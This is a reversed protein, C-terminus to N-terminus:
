ARAALTAQPLGGKWCCSPTRRAPLARVARPPGHHHCRQGGVLMLHGENPAHKGGVGEDRAAPPLAERLDQPALAPVVELDSRRRAEPDRVELGGARRVRCRRRMRILDSAKLVLVVHRILLLRGKCKREAVGCYHRGPARAARGDALELPLRAAAEFGQAGAVAALRALCGLAAAAGADCADGALVGDGGPAAPGGRAVLGEAGGRHREGLRVDRGRHIADDIVDLGPRLQLAGKAQHACQLLRLHVVAAHVEHRPGVAAPHRHLPHGGRPHARTRLREPGLVGCGRLLRPVIHAEDFSQVLQAERVGRLQEADERAVRVHVDDGGQGGAAVEEGPAELRGAPALLALDPHPRHEPLHERRHAPQVLEAQRM